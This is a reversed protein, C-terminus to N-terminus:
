AAFREAPRSAMMIAAHSHTLNTDKSYSTLTELIVKDDFRFRCLLTNCAALKLIQGPTLKELIDAVEKGIGLKFMATAKDDRLLQQALLMYTLNTEKIEDVTNVAEM